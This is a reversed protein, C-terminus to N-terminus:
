HDQLRLSGPDCGRAGGCHRRPRCRLEPDGTAVSKRFRGVASSARVVGRGPRPGRPEVACVPRVQRRLRPRTEQRRVVRRLGRCTRRRRGGRDSRRPEAEGGGGARWRFGVHTRVVDARLVIALLFASLDGRLGVLRGLKDRERQLCRRLRHRHALRLGAGGPHSSCHRPSWRPSPPLSPGPPYPPGGQFSARSVSAQGALVSVAVATPRETAQISRSTGTRRVVAAATRRLVTAGPDPLCYRGRRIMATAGLAAAPGLLGLQPLEYRWSFGSLAATTALSTLCVGVLLGTAVRDGSMRARGVGMCEAAGVLAAVLLLPGPTYVDDQIRTLFRADQRNLSPPWFGLQKFVKHSGRRRLPWYGPHFRWRSAPFGAVQRTRSPDFGLLFDRGVIRAFAAPQARITRKDFDRLIPTTSSASPPQVAYQPSHSNWMYWDSNHRTSVSQQPCLPRETAPLQLGQCDVFTTVRAYLYRNSFSSISWIGHEPHFAVVYLLIPLSFTLVLAGVPRWGVRLAIVAVLAPLVLGTGAGRVIAAYGLLGGAIAADIVSPQRRWLLIVCALVLLAEYLVDSLVYQEVVLQLPDVLLPVTALAAGWAPIERRLLFLYLVVAVALILLHQTLSILSLDGLRAFPAIAFSYGSPRLIDLHVTLADHLYHSSDFFLLAPRYARWDIWRVAAGVALLCGFPAHRRWAFRTLSARSLRGLRLRTWPLTLAACRSLISVEVARTAVKGTERRSCM